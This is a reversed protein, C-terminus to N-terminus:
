FGKWIVKAECHPCPTTGYYITEGCKTCPFEKLKHSIMLRVKIPESGPKEITGAIIKDDPKTFLGVVLIVIGFLLLVCFFLCGIEVCNMFGNSDIEKEAESRGEKYSLKPDYKLFWETKEDVKSEYYGSLAYALIASLIVIGLGYGIISTRM